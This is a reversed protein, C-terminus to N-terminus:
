YNEKKKGHTRKMEGRNTGNTRRGTKITKGFITQTWVSVGQCKHDKGSQRGRRAKEKREEGEKRRGLQQKKKM